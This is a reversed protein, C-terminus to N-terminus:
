PLWIETGTTGIYVSVSEKEGIVKSSHQSRSHFRREDDANSNTKLLVGGLMTNLYKNNRISRESTM